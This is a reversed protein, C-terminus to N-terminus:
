SSPFNVFIQTGSLFDGGGYYGKNRKFAISTYGTNSRIYLNALHKNALDVCRALGEGRDEGRGLSSVGKKVSELIAEYDNLKKDEYDKCKRISEPIGIGTDAIIMQTYKLKQFNQIAIIGSKPAMSHYFINQIMESVMVCIDLKHDKSYNTNVNIAKEVKDIITRAELEKIRTVELIADNKGKPNGRVKPPYPYFTVGKPLSDFFGLRALIFMCSKVNSKKKSKDKLIFHIKKNSENIAKDIMILLIISAFPSVFEADTFDLHISNSPRIFENIIVEIGNEDLCKPIIIKNM